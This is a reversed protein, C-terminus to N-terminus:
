PAQDVCALLLRQADRFGPAIELSQLVARKAAAVQKNNYLSMALTYYAEAKDVPGLALLARRAEVAQAFRGAEESLEAFRLLARVDYPEVMRSRELYRLALDKDGREAHLAALERSEDAGYEDVLLYRELVRALRDHDERRRYITALGHYPNDPGTYDGYIELADLFFGEAAGLDQRALADHGEKLRGLFSGEGSEALWDLLSAGEAEETLMDPWHRLVPDLVERRASMALRFAADLAQRSQGLVQQVAREEDMGRGLAQLLGIIADFGYTDAIFAVVRSAHYYSLMVHGPFAPRTFGRDIEELRHLRDKDFARFFRLEFERAWEPHSRQEEYLSLGETLWRPVHNASVGIAMTHAIEHWLTRAWNYPTGTQARPTNVAIVDGFCVGLLGIHPLGAVRVAFDDADNYAELLIKGKPRYPYRGSVEAFSAEAEQLMAPGLVASEDRHILLRFHESELRAFASHADLLQLTNAVFLNFADREHSRELYRRARDAQGLRLLGTGLAANAAANTPNVNVAQQAMRASAPYRFRLSLNESVTLYFDSARANIALARTEVAAYATTDGRLQHLSALHALAAISSPNVALAKELLDQAEAYHGDLIRLSAQLNLAGVSNPMKELAVSALSEKQAFSSSSNALSVYLEARHPNIGLAKEYIEQAFAVDYTAGFLAAHWLLSQVNSEDLDIATTLAENAAHYEELGAAARGGVGLDEPTTFVGQRLRSYIASYLGRAREHQGRAQYLDALDLGARWYDGKLRIAAHFAKEADELRGVAVLLRAQGYLVRPSQPWNSRLAEARRLGEDYAGTQAYTEFYGEINAGADPALADAYLARAEDYHGQNLLSAAESEQRAYGSTPCAGALVIVAILSRISPPM